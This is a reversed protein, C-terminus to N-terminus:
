CARRGGSSCWYCQNHGPVWAWGVRPQPFRESIQPCSGVEQSCSRGGRHGAMHEIAAIFNRDKRDRRGCAGGSVLESSSWHDLAPPVPSHGAAAVGLRLCSWRGGSASGAASSGSPRFASSARSGSAPRPVPRYWCGEHVTRTRSSSNPFQPAQGAHYGPHVTPFLRVM